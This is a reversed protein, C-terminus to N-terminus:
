AKLDLSRVYNKIQKKIRGEITYHDKRKYLRYGVFSGIPKGYHNARHEDKIIDKSVHDYIKHFNVPDKIFRNTAFDILRNQYYTDNKIKDSKSNIYSIAQDVYQKFESM